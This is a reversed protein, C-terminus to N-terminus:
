RPIVLVNGSFILSPNTLHNAQAIRVWAYGDGYAEQAIKWLYDGHQVTYQSGTITIPSTTAAAAVQGTTPAKLALNPLVIEQGVEIVSADSIKNAKALDYANWGSGYTAQAINWLNDGAKVVYKKEEAKNSSININANKIVTKVESATKIRQAITGLNSAVLKNKILSGALLLFVVLIVTGGLLFYNYKKRLTSFVLSQYNVVSSKRAM